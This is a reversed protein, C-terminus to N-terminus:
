RNVKEIQSRLITVQSDIDASMKELLDNGKENEKKVTDFLIYLDTKHLEKLEEQAEAIRKEAQAIKRITRVLASGIDDGKINEPNNREAEWIDQLKKLNGNQYAENIQQMLGHRRVKEEPDLTLDPHLLKALERYLTKLEDTPQFKTERDRELAQYPEADHASHDARAQSEAARRQAKSDSPIKSALIADLTAQLRDLEVYKSGVKFYYETEFSRLDAQLTSLSLELETLEELKQQLLAEKQNLELEEPTLRAIKM